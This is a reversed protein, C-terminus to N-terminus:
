IMYNFTLAKIPLWDESGWMNGVNADYHINLIHIQKKVITEQFCETYERFYSKWLSCASVM